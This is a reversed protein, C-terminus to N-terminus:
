TVTIADVAEMVVPASALTLIPGDLKVGTSQRV